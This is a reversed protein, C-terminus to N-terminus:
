TTWNLAHSTLTSAKLKKLELNKIAFNHRNTNQVLKAADCQFNILM